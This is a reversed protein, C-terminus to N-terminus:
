REIEQKIFEFADASENERCHDSVRAELGALDPRAAEVGMMIGIVMGRSTIFEGFADISAFDSPSLDAEIMRTFQRCELAMAPSAFFLAAAVTVLAKRNMRGAYQQLRPTPL